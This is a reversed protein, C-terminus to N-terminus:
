LAVNYDGRGGRLRRAEEIANGIRLEVERQPVSTVGAKTLEAALQKAAEGTTAHPPIDVGILPEGDLFMTCVICDNAANYKMRLVHFKEMSPHSDGKALDIGMARPPRPAILKRMMEEWLRSGLDDKGMLARMIETDIDSAKPPIVAGMRKMAERQFPALKNVPFPDNKNVKGEAQEMLQVMQEQLFKLDAKTEALENETQQLYAEATEARLTMAALAERLERESTM